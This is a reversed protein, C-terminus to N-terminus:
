DPPVAEEQGNLFLNVLRSSRLFISSAIWSSNYRQFRRWKWQYFNNRYESHGMGSGFLILNCSRLNWLNLGLPQTELGMWTHRTEKFKISIWLSSTPGVLDDFHVDQEWGHKCIKCSEMSNKKVKTCSNTLQVAYDERTKSKLNVHCHNTTQKRSNLVFHTMKNVMQGPHCNSKLQQQQQSLKHTIGSFFFSITAFRSSTWPVTRRLSIATVDREDM